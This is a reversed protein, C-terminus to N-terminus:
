GGKISVGVIDNVGEVGKDSIKFIEFSGMYILLPNASHFQRSVDVPLMRSFCSLSQFVRKLPCKESSRIFHCNFKKLFGRYLSCEIVSM